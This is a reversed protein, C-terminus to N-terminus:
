NFENWHKLNYEKGELIIKWGNDAEEYKVDAYHLKKHCISCVVIINWSQLTKPAKKNLEIMHHTEAYKKGNKKEFGPYGCIMCKHGHKEKIANSLGSSPRKIAKIVKREFEPTESYKEDLKKIYEENTLKGEDDFGDAEIDLIPFETEVTPEIFSLIVEEDEKAIQKFTPPDYNESSTQWEVIDFNEVPKLSKGIYLYKWKHGWIEESKNKNDIETKVYEMVYQIPKENNKLSKKEKALLILDGKNLGNIKRNSAYMKNEIIGKMSSEYCKFLHMANEKNLNSENQIIEDIFHFIKETDSQCKSDEKCDGYWIPSQGSIKKPAKLKRDKEDILICDEIKAEFIYEFDGGSPYKEGLKEKFSNITKQSHNQYMKFVRANNYWGVVYVGGKPNTAVWIVLINDIYGKENSNQKIRKLNLNSGRPTRVYGYYKGNIPSFNYIEHGIGTEDVYKGGNEIKDMTSIGNYYKM